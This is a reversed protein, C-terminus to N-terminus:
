KGLKLLQLAARQPEFARVSGHSGVRCSFAATHMGINAGIDVVASRGIFALLVEIEV